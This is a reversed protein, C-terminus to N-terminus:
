KHGGGSSYGGFSGGSTSGSQVHGFLVVPVVILLIVAVIFAVLLISSWSWQASLPSADGRKFMEARGALKFAAAVQASDIKNGSSWTIERADREMSLLANGNAFDRNSTRQGREVKWYFEGAVYSTEAKYAYLQRYTTGLYSAQMGGKALKPAGSTPRVMSWGDEADVLFSFGRQSNYLLYESWGFHEDDGPTVGMRHQFGVVQWDVGQLRGVAGLAILPRVPEDQEAHRLEGGIGRTLDIISHCAGCTISKSDELQVTVPAGCNPCNFGRGKEEKASEERLGTLQLDEALRVPRGLWAGPPQRDYELSLVRGKDDRLEVVTFRRGLEPLRPLEGQAAALAALGNSTVTYSQGGFASVAGVRLDGPPPADRGLGFPLSFVYAGNDESLVGIRGDDLAAIWETWRGGDYAYHLRGVIMFSQQGAKGAAFLQVPSFDDFLEAMKGVRALTEGQRVVASRCYGCVAHTSQASRFEVPAGCGPCPARYHRQSNEAM